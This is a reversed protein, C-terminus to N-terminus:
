FEAWMRLLNTQVQQILPLAESQPNERTLLAFAQEQQQMLERKGADAIMSQIWFILALREGRTIEIVRHRLGAPYFVADGRELKIKVEGASTRAQLEGGDYDALKSLFVTCAIDTRVPVGPGQMLPNDIHWGYAMGETYKSILPATMRLPWLMTRLTKSANVVQGITEVFENRRSSKGLDLQLNYKLAKTPGGTTEAGDIWSGEAILEDIYDLQQTDLLKDIRVFM